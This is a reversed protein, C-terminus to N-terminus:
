HNRSFVYNNNKSLDDRFSYGNLDFRLLQAKEKIQNKIIFRALLGRAMKAHNAIVKEKGNKNELFQCQLVNLKLNKKDLVKAYENSALNVIIEDEYNNNLYDTIVDRWFDYLSDTTKNINFKFAMELRYQHIIDLPKLFGYLGSIVFLNNQAYDIEKQSMLNSALGKFATGSYLFISPFGNKNNNLSWNSFSQYTSV